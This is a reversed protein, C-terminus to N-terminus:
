WGAGLSGHVGGRTRDGGEREQPELPHESPPGSAADASVNKTGGSGCASLTLVVALGSAAATVIRRTRSRHYTM